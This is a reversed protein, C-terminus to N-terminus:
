TIYITAHNNLFYTYMYPQMADTEFNTFATKQIVSKLHLSVKKKVHFSVQLQLINYVREKKKLM